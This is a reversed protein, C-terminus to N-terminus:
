TLSIEPDEADVWLEGFTDSPPVEELEAIKV